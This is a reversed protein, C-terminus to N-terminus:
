EVKEFNGSKLLAKGVEDDVEIVEGNSVKANVELDKSRVIIPERGKYVVKM